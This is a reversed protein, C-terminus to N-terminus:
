GSLETRPESSGTVANDVSHQVVEEGLESEAGGDDAAVVGGLERGAGQVGALLLAVQAGEGAVVGDAPQQEVGADPDGLEDSQVVVDRERRTFALDDDAGALALDGALDREQVAGCDRGGLVNGYGCWVDVSNRLYPIAYSSAILSSM